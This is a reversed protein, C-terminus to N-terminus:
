ITKTQFKRGGEKKKEKRFYFFLFFIRKAGERFQSLCNRGVSRGIFQRARWRLM